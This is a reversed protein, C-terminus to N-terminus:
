EDQNELTEEFFLEIIPRRLSLYTQRFDWRLFVAERGNILYATEVGFLM